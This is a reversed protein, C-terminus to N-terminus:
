FRVNVGATVARGIRTEFLTDQRVSDTYLVNREHTLNTADAILKINDTIGYSASADVYLTPKNGQLDSGPSAPIGRIFRDRYNATSRISFRDDEYYLTGSATNKSLGVLDNITTVTPM